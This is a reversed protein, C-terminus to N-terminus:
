GLYPKKSNEEARGFFNRSLVKLYAVVEKM